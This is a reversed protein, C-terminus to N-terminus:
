TRKKLKELENQLHMNKKEYAEYGFKLLRYQKKCKELSTLDEINEVIFDDMRGSSASYGRRLPSNVYSGTKRKVTFPSGVGGRRKGKRVTKRGRLVKRM